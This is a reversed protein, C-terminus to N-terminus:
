FPIDTLDEETQAPQAPKEAPQPANKKGGLLQLSFARVGWFERKSGDEQQVENCELQGQVLIPDGKLAYKKLVEAVKAFCTVNIFLPKDGDKGWTNVGIRARAYVTGNAATKLEPDKTLHGVFTVSNFSPM